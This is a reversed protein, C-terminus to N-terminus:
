ERYASPTTGFQARFVRRFHSLNSLGVEDVIEELTLSSNKLRDAARQMRMMTVIRHPALGTSRQFSRAFHYPSLAAAESLDAISLERELNGAIFEIVRKLRISDLGRFIREQGGFKLQFVRVYAARVLSDQQLGDLPHWGRLGARLRQAIALLVPDTWGFMDDLDSHRDAHLEEAIERRLRPSATVEVVDGINGVDLWAIPEWGTLGISGPPIDRHSVRDNGRRILAKVQPTFAVGISGPRSVSTVEEDRWPQMVCHAIDLVATRLRVIDPQLIMQATTQTADPPM